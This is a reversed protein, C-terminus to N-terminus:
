TISRKSRRREVVAPPESPILVNGDGSGNLGVPPEDTAVASRVEESPRAALDSAVIAEVIKDDLREEGLDLMTGVVRMFPEAAIRPMNRMAVGDKIANGFALFSLPSFNASRIASYLSEAYQIPDPRAM